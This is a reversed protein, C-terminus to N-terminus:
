IPRKQFVKIKSTKDQDEYAKKPKSNVAIVKNDKIKTKVIFFSV